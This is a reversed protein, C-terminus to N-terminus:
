KKISNKQLVLKYKLEKGLPSYEFRKKTAAKELLDKELLVDKATLFEYKSCKRHDLLFRLLKDAQTTKLKAQNSKRSQELKESISM